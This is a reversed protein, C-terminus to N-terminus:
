LLIMLILLFASQCTSVVNTLQWITKTAEELAPIATANCCRKSKMQQLFLPLLHFDMTLPIVHTKIPPIFPDINKKKESDDAAHALLGLPRSYKDLEIQPLITIFDHLKLVEYKCKIEVTTVIFLSCNQFWVTEKRKVVVQKNFLISQGRIYNNPHPSLSPLKPSLFFGSETKKGYTVNINQRM